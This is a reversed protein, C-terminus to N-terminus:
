KLLGMVIEAKKASSLWSGGKGKGRALDKLEAVTLRMLQDKVIEGAVDVLPQVVPMDPEGDGRYGSDEETLDATTDFPVVEIGHLAPNFTNYGKEFGKRQGRERGVLMGMAGTFGMAGQEWKRYSWAGEGTGVFLLAGLAVLVVLGDDDRGPILDFRPLKPFRM